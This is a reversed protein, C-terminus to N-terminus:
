LAVEVKSVAEFPERGVRWPGLVGLSRRAVDYGLHQVLLEVPEALLGVGSRVGDLGLGCQVLRALGRFPPPGGGLRDLPDGAPCRM